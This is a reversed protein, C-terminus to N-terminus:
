GHAMEEESKSLARWLERHVALYGPATNKLHDKMDEHLAPLAHFPVSPFVHHETHYIMNWALARVIPNSFTTRTNAIMDDGSACGTHEAMLYLRLFPQGLLIPLLWYQLAAWSGLAVSAAIVALYGAWMWRAEAVCAAQDGDRVFNQKARGRVAHKFSTGFRSRMYRLGLAWWFYAARTSPPATSLEPDLKPDQTHRHHAFHFLRFYFAPYFVLWGTVFALADNVGKSQFVTRHILEHHACFLFAVVIGHVVMAPVLWWGGSALWVLSGTAGLAALHLVLHALSKLDAKVSLAAIRDRSLLDDRAIFDEM